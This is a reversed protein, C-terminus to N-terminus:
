ITQRKNMRESIPLVVVNHRKGTAEMKPHRKLGEAYYMKNKDDKFEVYGARRMNFRWKMKARSQNGFHLRTRQPLDNKWRRRESVILAKRSQSVRALVKAGYRETAMYHASKKVGMANAYKRVAGATRGLHAVCEDTPTDPYHERLWGVEASTWLRNPKRMTSKHMEGRALVRQNIFKENM